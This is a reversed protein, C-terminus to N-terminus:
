RVTIITPHMRGHMEHVVIVTMMCVFVYVCMITFMYVNLVCMCVSTYVLRMCMCIFVGCASVYAFAFM